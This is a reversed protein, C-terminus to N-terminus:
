RRSLYSCSGSPSPLSALNMKSSAGWCTTNSVQHTVTPKKFGWGKHGGHKYGLLWLLAKNKSEYTSHFFSRIFSRCRINFYDHLLLYDVLGYYYDVKKFSGPIGQVKLLSFDPHYFIFHLTATSKWSMLVLLIYLGPLSIGICHPGRWGM